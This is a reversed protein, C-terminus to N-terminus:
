DLLVYIASSPLLFSWEALDFDWYYFPRPKEPHPRSKVKRFNRYLRGTDPFSVLAAKDCASPGAALEEPKLIDVFLV